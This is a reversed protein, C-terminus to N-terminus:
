KIINLFMFLVPAALLVSDFRDLLGGHGPMITGSDKVHLSRKFLSEVLDGLTGFIFVLFALVLWQWLQLSVSNGTETIKYFIFGTILAFVMGGFFGEWSKKPSVREFMKHKGITIGVLYAGTDSAWIMIFFALVFIKHHIEIMNVCVLPLVFYVHGMLVTAINLVPNNKKRFLESIFIALLCLIYLYFVTSPLFGFSYLFFSLYLLGGSIIGVTKEMKIEASQDYFSYFERLGAIIIFLFVIGFLYPPFWIASIM